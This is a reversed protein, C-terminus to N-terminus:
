LKTYTTVNTTGSVGASILDVTTASTVSYQYAQASPGFNSCTYQVTAYTGSVSVSGSGYFTTV